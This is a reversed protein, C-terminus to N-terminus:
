AHIRGWLFEALHMGTFSQGMKAAAGTINLLCGCDASLVMSAGTAAIDAVKDRVMAASVEPRKVSFTGGFGCCEYERTIEKLEVNALGRLIAKAAQTSGTERMAHCSSHWAVTVSPGRDEFCAGLERGIFDFFEFVRGSFALVEFYRPHGEFLKPYHLKLMGACSGSPVVIPGSQGAFAEIQRLAVKRAEGPFGSNYAPQGCCGQELPYVVDLGLHELIRIAAMGAGPFAADALCTGFFSVTGPSATKHM